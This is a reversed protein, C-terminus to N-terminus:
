QEDDDRRRLRWREALRVEEELTELAWAYHRSEDEAGRALVWTIDAPHPARASRRYKDRVQRENM